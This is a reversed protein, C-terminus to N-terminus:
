KEKHGSNVHPRLESVLYYLDGFEPSLKHICHISYVQYIVNFINFSQLLHKLFSIGESVSSNTSSSLAHRSTNRPANKAYHLNSKMQEMQVKGHQM